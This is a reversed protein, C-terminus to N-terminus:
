RKQVVRRWVKEYSQVMAPISFRELARARAAAGHEQRLEYSAAYVSLAQALAEPSGAPVLTGTVGPEVLEPNGGVATAVVPLGTAMAELITNSIGENRSPLVFLDLTRMLEPVDRREGLFVVGEGAMTELRGREPGDGVVLLRAEPVTERLRSFASFLTPHDKIPDLRGVVGAVFNGRPIGLENRLHDGPGPLFRETDVGNYIQTIPKALGVDNRLWGVMAQSVCTYEKVWRSLLRRIRLRRPSLGDPDGVGWGHEGHVVNRIGALRAAVVGDMGSWNRTHVLDPRLERFLKALQFLFRISNGESKNLEVVKLDGKVLSRSGQGRGLCVIVHRFRGSGHNIVTAIGKEMGGIDFSYLVHAVLLGSNPQSNRTSVRIPTNPM